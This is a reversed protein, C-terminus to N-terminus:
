NSDNPNGAQSITKTESVLDEEDTITFELTVASSVLSSFLRFPIKFMYRADEGYSFESRPPVSSHSTGSSETIQIGNQVCVGSIEDNLDTYEKESSESPWLSGVNSYGVIYFLDGIAPLISLTNGSDDEFHDINIFPEAASQVVVIGAQGGEDAEVDFSKTRQSRGTHEGVSFTLRGNGSLDNHDDITVFDYTTTSM